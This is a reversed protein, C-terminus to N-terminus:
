HSVVGGRPRVRINGELLAKDSIEALPDKKDHTFSAREARSMRLINYREGGLKYEKGFKKFKRKWEWKDSKPASSSPKIRAGLEREYARVKEETGYCGAERFNVGAKKGYAIVEKRYPLDFGQGQLTTTWYIFFTMVLGLDKIDSDAKLLKGRDLENLVTVFARGVLGITAELRKRDDLGLWAGIPIEVLWQMIAAIIAWMQKLNKKNRKKKSFEKDFALLMNEVLEQMGHSHFQKHIHMNFFEPNTYSARREWTSFLKWTEWMAVWRHNPHEVAPKMEINDEAKAEENYQELLDEEDLQDDEDKDWNENEIDFFPRFM